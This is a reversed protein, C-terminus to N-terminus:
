CNEFEYTQQNFGHVAMQLLGVEHECESSYDDLFCTASLKLALPLCSELLHCVFEVTVAM